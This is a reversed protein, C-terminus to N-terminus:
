ELELCRLGSSRNLAMGANNPMWDEAAEMMAVVPVSGSTIGNQPRVPARARGAGSVPQGAPPKGRRRRAAGRGSPHQVCRTTRRARGRPSRSGTARSASPASSAAPPPICSYTPPRAIVSARSPSASLREATRSGADTEAAACCTAACSRLPPPLPRDDQAGLHDPKGLAPALLTRHFSPLVHRLLNSESRVLNPSRNMRCCRDRPASRRPEYTSGGVRNPDPQATLHPTAPHPTCRM